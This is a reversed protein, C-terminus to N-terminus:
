TAESHKQAARKRAMYDKCHATQILRHRQCHTATVLAGGCELCRGEALKRLQWLRQRSVLVRGDDPHPYLYRDGVKPM